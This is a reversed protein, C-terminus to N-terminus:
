SIALTGPSIAAIPLAVSSLRVTEVFIRRLGNDITGSNAIGGAFTTVGNIYIGIIAAALVGANSIGGTFTPGTISIAKNAGSIKSANDILIGLGTVSITGSDSIQGTITSNNIIAIGTTAALHHRYQGSQRHLVYQQRRHM